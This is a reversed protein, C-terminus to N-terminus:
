RAGLLEANIGKEAGFPRELNQARGDIDNLASIAEQARYVQILKVAADREDQTAVSQCRERTAFGGPPVYNWPWTPALFPTEARPSPSQTKTM